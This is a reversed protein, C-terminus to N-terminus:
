DENKISKKYQNFNQKFMGNNIRFLMYDSDKNKAEDNIWKVNTEIIKLIEEVNEHSVIVPIFHKDVMKINKGFQMSVLVKVDYSKLYEIIENGKLKSGHKTEEDIDRKTNEIEDIFVLEKSDHEYIIYKDADGFHKKQFNGNENVAFAFRLNM